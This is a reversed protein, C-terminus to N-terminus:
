KGGREDGKEMTREEKKKKMKRREGKKQRRGDEKEEKQPNALSPGGGERHDTSRNKGREEKM